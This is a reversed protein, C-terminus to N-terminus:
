APAGADPNTLVTGPHILDADDGILERNHHYWQPWAQAIEATSTDAPLHAAAIQWLSDGPQVQYSSPEAPAPPAAAQVPDAGWGLDSAVPPQTTPADEDEAAYAPTLIAGLAMASGASISLLRRALPAGHRGVIREARRWRRGMARGLLCLLTMTATGWYWAVLVAGILLIGSAIARDLTWAPQQISTSILRMLGLLALASALAIAASTVGRVRDSM